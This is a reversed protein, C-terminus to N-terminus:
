LTVMNNLVIKKSRNNPALTEMDFKVLKKLM